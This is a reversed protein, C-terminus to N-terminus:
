TTWLRSAGPPTVCFHVAPRLTPSEETVEGAAPLEAGTAARPPAGRRPSPRLVHRGTAARREAGVREGPRAEAAPPALHAGRASVQASVARRTALADTRLPAAAECATAAVFAPATQARAGSAVALASGLIALTLAKRM